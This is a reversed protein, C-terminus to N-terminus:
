KDDCTKHDNAIAMPKHKNAFLLTKRWSDMKFFFPKEGIPWSERFYTKYAHNWLEM